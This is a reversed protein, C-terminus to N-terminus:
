RLSRRLGVIRVAVARRSSLGPSLRVSLRHRKAEKMVRDHATKIASAAKACCGGALTDIRGVAGIGLTLTGQRASKSCM